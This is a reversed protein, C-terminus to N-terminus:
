AGNRGVEKWTMEKAKRGTKEKWAYFMQAYSQTIYEAEKIGLKKATQDIWDSTGELEALNGIPTEDIVLHGEGDSWEARYKEYRFSPKLGLAEFVHAMAQGDDVRTETEVRSKHKGANGKTKHTITWKDGYKRIRLIEGRARLQGGPTDYLTNMEHARPTILKFNTATLKRTLADLDAVRLKIEVEEQAPMNPITSSCNGVLV